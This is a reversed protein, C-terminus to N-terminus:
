SVGGGRGGGRCGRAKAVELRALTGLQSRQRDDGVVIRYGDRVEEANAAKRSLPEARLHIM